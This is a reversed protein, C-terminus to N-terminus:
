IIINNGFNGFDNELYKKFNKINIANKKILKENENYIKYLNHIENVNIAVIGNYNLSKYEDYHCTTVLFPYEKEVEQAIFGIEDKGILTNFYSVPTLNDTNQNEEMSKINMKIRKDSSTYVTTNVTLTNGIWLKGQVYVNGLVTGLYLSDPNSALSSYGIAGAYDGVYLQVKSISTLTDYQIFTPSTASATLNFGGPALNYLTTGSGQEMNWYGTLGLTTVSIRKNYTQQIQSQTRVVNWVRVEDIYGNFYQGAANSWGIMFSVSQNFVNITGSTELVGNVYLSSNGSASPQFSAAVHYWKNISITTNSLISTGSWNYLIFYTTTGSTYAFLGYAYQKVIIGMFGGSAPLVSLNVWCEITGTSYNYNNISSAIWYSSTGNFRCVYKNNVFMDVDANTGILLNNNNNTSGYLSGSVLSNGTIYDDDIKNYDINAYFTLSPGASASWNTGASSLVFNPGGKVSNIFTNKSFDDMIWYGMLGPSYPNIRKNYINKVEDSSLPYNWFRIENMCGDYYTTGDYGLQLNLFSNQAYGNNIFRLLNPLSVTGKTKLQGDIYFETGNTISDQYSMAFHHWSYYLSPTTINITNVNSINSTTEPYNQLRIQTASTIYLLFYNSYNMLCKPSKPNFWFEITGNQFFYPNINTTTDNSFSLTAIDSTGNFKYSYSKIISTNSTINKLSSYSYQFLSPPSLLSNSILPSPNTSFTPTGYLTMNYGGLILNNLITGTGEEMIWYGTLGSANPLVRMNYRLQIQSQPRIINWIRVEDIYGNLYQGGTINGWGITFTYNQSLINITKTAEVVGNLYLISNGSASPQFTLAVHYWTNISIPTNVTSLQSTTFDNFVFYTATGNNYAYISYAQRKVLIAIRATSQPLVSLNVWCEITGTSYNYYTASSTEGYQNTGNLQLSYNNSFFTPYNILTFNYGSPVLNFLKNGTGEEMTWYGTLNKTNVSIRTNYTQQIQEQTRIINWIRFEDIYGNFFTTNDYGIMLSTNQSSIVHMGTRELLGNLYIVTGNLINSQCTFALHYWTNISLPTTGYVTTNLNNDYFSFYTIGASNSASVTYVTPKSYIPMSSGSAPLSTLYVWCEITIVQEGYYLPSSMTAYQNNGNFYLSYNNTSVVNNQNAQYINPTFSSWVPVGTIPFDYGGQVCNYLTNGSGEDMKWYGVLGSSSPSVSINYNNLIDSDNRLTNWMRVEDIGGMFNYYNVKYFEYINYFAGIRFITDTIQTNPFINNATGKYSLGYFTFVQNLMGDIYLKSGNIVGSNYVFAIHHWKGDSVIVNSFFVNNNYFDYVLVMGNRVFIAFNKYAVCYYSFRQVAYGSSSSTYGIPFPMIWCEFTGSSLDYYNQQPMQCYQTGNFFLSYDNLCQFLPRSGICINSDGSINYYLANTGFAINNGGYINNNLSQHGFAVNNIGIINNQLSLGGFSCNYNGVTNDYMSGFGFATNGTGTTNSYMSYNGFSTNFNGSTTLYQSYSGIATNHNGTSNFLSFCGISNSYSTNANMMSQYGFANNQTGSTNNMMSQNGFCTSYGNSSSLCSQYGFASCGISSLNLGSQYGFSVTYQVNSTANSISYFGFASNNIPNSIKSLVFGGFGTNPGSNCNKLSDNGFALNFNATTSNLLSRTGFSSSPFNNNMYLSQYGFSSNYSFSVNSRQSFVGMAVNLSGTTNNTMTDYGIATNYSGTSTNLMSNGGFGVNFNSNINLLSNSGVCTNYYIDASTPTQSSYMAYSGFSTNSSGNYLNMSYFGFANNFYGGISGFTNNNEIYINYLSYAGFSTSYGGGGKGYNTKYGFGTHYYGSSKYLSYSGFSSNNDYAQQYSANYGMASNYSGTQGYLSYAGLASNYSTNDALYLSFIGVCTNYKNDNYGGSYINTGMMIPPISFRSSGNVYLDYTGPNTTNIGIYGTGGKIRMYEPTKNIGSFIIDQTSGTTLNLGSQFYSGTGDSNLKLASNNLIYFSSNMSIDGGTINFNGNRLVINGSVDLFDQIYTNGLRNINQDYKLWSNTNM